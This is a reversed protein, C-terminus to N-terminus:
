FILGGERAGEALSRVRGHYKYGATDFVVKQIGIQKAREALVLGVVKSKDCKKMSGNLREKVDKHLTSVTLLTRQTTDDILQAYIHKLSRYVCLRPRDPTGSIKKRIRRHRKFRAEIKNKEM